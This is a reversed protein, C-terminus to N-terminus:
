GWGGGGFGWSIKRRSSMELAESASSLTRKWDRVSLDTRSEWGSSKMWMSASLALLVSVSVSEPMPM